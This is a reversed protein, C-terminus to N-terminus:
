PIDRFFFFVIPLSALAAINVTSALYTGAPKLWAVALNDIVATLAFLLCSSLIALRAIEDNVQLAQLPGPATGAMQHLVAIAFLMYGPALAEGRLLFGSGLTNASSTDLGRLGTVRLQRLRIFPSSVADAIRGASLCFPHIISLIM